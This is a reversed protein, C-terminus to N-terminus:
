GYGKGKMCTRVDQREPEDSSFLAKIASQPTAGSIKSAATAAQKQCRALAAQYKPSAHDTVVPPDYAACGTLLLGASLTIARMRQRARTQGIPMIAETESLPELLGPLRRMRDLFIAGAGYEYGAFLM